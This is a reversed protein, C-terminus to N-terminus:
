GLAQISNMLVSIEKTGMEEIMEMDGPALRFLGTSNERAQQPSRIGPIITSVAPYSLIYSLALQTKTCDYKQCLEWIPQLLKKAEDVLTMTVRNKRHDNVPFSVRKDFKGTLLGFQLPMRAIIGYKHNETQKILPLARQNILNLVLQFGSGWKNEILLNAEPLPDFSNLSLGWYRIKGQEQLKTMAIVCEETRLHELRASHLQYYDIYDRRLRKLSAECANLIHKRSYDVTFKEERAVNGAKSAIIVDKRDGIWEGLLKESHGLGYIDATDFFNIGQDLSAHVAKKSLNDDADGWGIATEGIMANGGIAWAGFGVESIVLDTNGFRRFQM